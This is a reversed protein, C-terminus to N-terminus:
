HLIVLIEAIDQPLMVPQCRQRQLLRHALALGLCFYTKWKWDFKRVQNLSSSMIAGRLCCVGVKALFGTRALLFLASFRRFLVSSPLLDTMRFLVRVFFFFEVKSCGMLLSEVEFYTSNEFSNKERQVRLGKMDM